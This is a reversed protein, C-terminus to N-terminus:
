ELNFHAVVPLHDSGISPGVAIAELRAADPLLVQDIPLFPVPGLGSKGMKLTLRFGPAVQTGTEAAVKRAAASWPAANFDGALVVPRPMAKFADSLRGLQQWQGYPSPWHLHLSAISLPKGNVNAQVWAFGEGAKCDSATLPYRSRVAVGGVTAFECLVGHPLDAALGDYIAVTTTSVEQLTVFDPKQSLIWHLSVDSTQNKFLSNFQVLTLGDRRSNNFQFHPLAPSLSAVGAALVLVFGLGWRWLRFVAVGPVMLALLALMHARFHAVSDLLPVYAGFLSALITACLVATALVLLYRFIKM